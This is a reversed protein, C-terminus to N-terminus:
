TASKRRSGGTGAARARKTGNVAPPPEPEPEPANDRTLDVVPPAGQGSWVVDGSPPTLPAWASERPGRRTRGPWRAALLVAVLAALAGLAIAGAMFLHWGYHQVVRVVAVPPAAGSSTLPRQHCPRQIVTSDGLVADVAPRWASLEQRRPLRCQVVTGGRLRLDVLGLVDSPRLDTSTAHAFAGSVSQLQDFGTPQLLAHVLASLLSSSNAELPEETTAAQVYLAAKRPGLHLVGRPFDVTHGNTDQVAFPTHNVLSVGGVRAVIDAVKAPDIIAVHSVPVHEAQFARIADTVSLSSLPSGNVITSPPLTLFGAMHSDPVTTFLVAAGQSIGSGYRVLTVQRDSLISTNKPLVVSVKAPLHARSESIDGSLSRLEVAIWALLGAAIALGVVLMIGSVQVLRAQLRNDGRM